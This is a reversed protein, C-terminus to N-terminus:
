WSFQKTVRFIESGFHRFIDRFLVKLHSYCRDDEDGVLNKELMEWGNPKGGNSPSPSSIPLLYDIKDCENADRHGGPTGMAGWWFWYWHWECVKAWLWVFINANASLVVNPLVRFKVKRRRREHEMWFYVLFPAIECCTTKEAKREDGNKKHHVITFM